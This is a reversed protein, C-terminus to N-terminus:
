TRFKRNNELSQDGTIKPSAIEPLREDRLVSYLSTVNPRQNAPVSGITSDIHYKFIAFMYRKRVEDSTHNVQVLDM